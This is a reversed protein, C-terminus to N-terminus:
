QTPATTKQKDFVNVMYECAARHAAELPHWTESELFENARSWELFTRGDFQTMCTWTLKQLELIAPTVHWQQDFLLKDIFTMIFPIRKQKLIDIALQIYSLCTFKDGLESHLERYYTQSLSSDNGPVITSWPTNFKNNNEPDYYDFRDIWTWGIVFFDDSGANGIENLISHLIQLNGSGPKAYCSYDLGRAQSLLAPWSLQSPTSYDEDPLDCGYIFSCGFSKLNM